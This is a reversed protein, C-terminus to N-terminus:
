DGAIVLGDKVEGKLLILIGKVGKYYKENVKKKTIKKLFAKKRVFYIECWYCM